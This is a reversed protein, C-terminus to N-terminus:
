CGEAANGTAAEELMKFTYKISLPSYIKNEKKNEFKLFSFDFKSFDNDTLAYENVASFDKKETQNSEIITNDDTRNSNYIVFGMCCIVILLVIILINKKM